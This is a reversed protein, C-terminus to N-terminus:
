DDKCKLFTAFLLAPGRLIQTLLHHSAATGNAGKNSTCLYNASVASTTALLLIAVELTNDLGGGTIILLATRQIRETM